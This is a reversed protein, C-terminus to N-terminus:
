RGLKVPPMSDDHPQGTSGGDAKKQQQEEVLSPPSPLSPCLFLLAALAGLFIALRLKLQRPSLGPGPLTPLANSEPSVPVEPCPVVEVPFLEPVLTGETAAIREPCCLIGLTIDDGSGQESTEKLWGELNARVSELSDARIAHLLDNGVQHFAAEDQFSNAYGDTALLVLAPRYSSDPLWKVRFEKAANVASLSTTENALLREDRELPPEVGGGPQVLLVDGDGLQLLLLGGPLSAAALLTTGYALWLRPGNWSAPDACDEFPHLEHDQAVQERWRDILRPLIQQRVHAEIEEDPIAQRALEDRFPLLEQVAIKVAFEAGQGSRPSHASGHGDAVALVGTTGDASDQALVADQNPLGARRHSAGRVTRGLIRWSVPADIVNL